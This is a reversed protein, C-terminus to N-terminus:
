ARRGRCATLAAARARDYARNGLMTRALSLAGHRVRLPVLARGPRALLRALRDADLRETVALRPAVSEGGTWLGPRSGFVQTYGAERALDNLRPHGRGGPLALWTVPRGTLDELARRAERLEAALAHATCDNFYRHRMGHAGIQAGGDALERAEARTLMHDRGLQDVTLFFVGTAQAGALLPAAVRLHSAWSDDFTWVVRRDADRAARLHSDFLEAPLAYDRDDPNLDERAFRGAQCLAHYMLVLAGTM